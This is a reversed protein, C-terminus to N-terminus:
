PEIFTPLLCIFSTAPLIQCSRGGNTRAAWLFARLIRVDHEDPSAALARILCREAKKPNGIRLM